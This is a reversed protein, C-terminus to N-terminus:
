EPATGVSSRNISLRMKHRIDALQRTGLNLRNVAYRAKVYALDWATLSLPIEAGMQSDMITLITDTGQNVLDIPDVESVSRMLAYDAIQQMTLGLVAPREIVLVSMAIAVTSNAELRSLGSRSEVIQVGYLEAGMYAGSSLPIPNGNRDIRANIKWATVPSGRGRYVIDEGTIKTVYEPHRLAFGKLAADGDDVFMVLASTDCPKPAIEIGAAVAVQRIRATIAANSAPSLGVVAPCYDRPLYLPIASTPSAETLAKAYNRIARTREREAEGTVVIPSDKPEAPQPQEQAAAMHATGLALFLPLIIRM